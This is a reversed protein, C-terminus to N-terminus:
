AAVASRIFTACDKSVTTWPAGLAAQAAANIDQNDHVIRGFFELMKPQTYKDSIRRVALFAVGYRASAEELSAASSPAAVEPNGDWQNKVFAKTPPIADYDRVQKGIMTAYDAIGEILWWASRGAGDRKGALTTVHTLEHTLLTELGRQQVVQTRVVVETVSASVPVAWAAAWEPQNHGYWKKWDDPGALFIVYRSPPPEWKALTDAVQAAKDASKVADPLRWANVKTAAMVVRKGALVTLEDTEWPRPGNWQPDSPKLDVMVLRDNKYAWESSVVLQVSSCTAAGFCYGIKIDATWSRSDHTRLSGTVAQTWVGPGMAHLVKFRRKHEAVLAANTPDVVALFGAENGALLAKAQDAVEDGVSRRAWSSWESAPANQAPPPSAVVDQAGPKWAAQTDLAGAYDAYGVLGGIGLVSCMFVVAAIGAVWRLPGRRAPAPAWPNPRYPGGPMAPGYPYGTVPQGYVQGYPGPVGSYPMASYPVVSYPVASYPQVGVAPQM